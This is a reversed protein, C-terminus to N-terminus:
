TEETRPPAFMDPRLSVGRAKLRDMLRPRIGTAVFRGLVQGTPSMGTQEFRFIEQMILM